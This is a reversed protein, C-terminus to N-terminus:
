FMGSILMSSFSDIFHLPISSVFFMVQYNMTMAVTVRIAAIIVELERHRLACVAVCANRLLIKPCCSYSKKKASFSFCLKSCGFGHLLFLKKKTPLGFIKIRLRNM